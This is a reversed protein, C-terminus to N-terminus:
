SEGLAFCAQTTCRVPAEESGWTSSDKCGALAFKEKKSLDFKSVTPPTYPKRLKESNEAM